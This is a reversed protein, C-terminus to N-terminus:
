KMNDAELKRLYKCTKKEDLTRIKGQNPLLIGKTMQRKLKGTNNAHFMKRLLIGVQYRWLIDENGIHPNGTWKKKM